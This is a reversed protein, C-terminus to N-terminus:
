TQQRTKQTADDPQRRWPLSQAAAQEAESESYVVRCFHAAIGIIYQPEHPGSSMDAFDSQERLGTQYPPDLHRARSGPGAGPRPGVHLNRKLVGGFLHGPRSFFSALRAAAHTGLKQLRCKTDESLGRPSCAPSQAALM